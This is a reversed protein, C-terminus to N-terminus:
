GTLLFKNHFMKLLNHSKYHSHLRVNTARATVSWLQESASTYYTRTCGTCVQGAVFGTKSHNTSALRMCIANCYDITIYGYQYSGKTKTIIFSTFRCKLFSKLLLKPSIETCMKNSYVSDKNSSLFFLEKGFGM